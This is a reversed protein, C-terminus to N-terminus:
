FFRSSMEMTAANELPCKRRISSVPSARAGQRDLAKAVEEEDCVICLKSESHLRMDNNFLCLLSPTHRESAIFDPTKHVTIQVKFSLIEACCCRVLRLRTHPYVHGCRSHSWLTHTRVTWYTRLICVLVGKSKQPQTERYSRCHKNHERPSLFTSPTLLTQPACAQEHKRDRTYMKRPM